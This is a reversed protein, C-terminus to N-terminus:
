RELPAEGHDLRCLDEVGARVGNGNCRQENGPRAALRSLEQHPRKECHRQHKGEVEQQREDRWRAGEDRAAPPALKKQLLPDVVGHRCGERREVDHPGQERGARPRRSKRLRPGGRVSPGRQDRQAAEGGPHVRDGVNGGAREHKQRHHAGSPDPFHEVACCLSDGIVPGFPPDTRQSDQAVACPGRECIGSREADHGRHHAGRLEAEHVRGGGSAQDAREDARAQELM